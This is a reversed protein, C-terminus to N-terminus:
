YTQASIGRGTESDTPLGDLYVTVKRPTIDAHRRFECGAVTRRLRSMVLAVHEPTNKHGRKNPTRRLHEEFDTLHEDLLKGAESQHAAVLGIEALKRRIPESLGAIWPMLDPDTQGGSAKFYQVLRVLKQGMEQSAAKSTFGPLRRVRAHHDRFEIYWKAAECTHGQRDKYTTKFLRHRM